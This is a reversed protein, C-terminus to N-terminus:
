LLLRLNPLCKTPCGTYLMIRNSIQLSAYVLGHILPLRNVALQLINFFVKCNLKNIPEDRVVSVEVASLCYPM